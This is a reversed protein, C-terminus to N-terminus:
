KKQLAQRLARLPPATKVDNEWDPSIQAYINLTTSAQTHGLAAQAAKINVGAAVLSTAYYHRLDHLTIKLGIKKSCRHFTDSLYLKSVPKGGFGHIVTNQYNAAWGMAFILKKQTTKWTKLCALMDDNLPVVRSKKTKPLGVARDTYNEGTIAADVILRRSEFEIKDWTLAAIEGRRLGALAAILIVIRLCGACYNQASKLFMDWEDPAPFIVRRPEAIAPLKIKGLPKLLGEAEAERLARLLFASDTRATSASYNKQLTNVVKQIDTRTMASLLSAGCIKKIRKIIFKYKKQSTKSVSQCWVQIFDDLWEGVTSKKGSPTGGGKLLEQRINLAERQSKAVRVIRKRKGTIPDYGCSIAVIWRGRNDKYISGEGRSRKM